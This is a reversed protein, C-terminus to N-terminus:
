KTEGQMLYFVQICCKNQQVCTGEEVFGLPHRVNDIACM